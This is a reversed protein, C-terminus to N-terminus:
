VNNKFERYERYISRKANTDCGGVPVYAFSRFKGDASAGIIKPMSGQTDLSYILNSDKPVNTHYQKSRTESYKRM